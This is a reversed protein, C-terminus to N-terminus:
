GARDEVASWVLDHILSNPDDPDHRYVKVSAGDYRNLGNATGFWMFGRKDQSLEWTQDSSLGDEATLRDFKIYRSLLPDTPSQTTASGVATNQATVFDVTVGSILISTALFTISLSKHLTTMLIDTITKSIM